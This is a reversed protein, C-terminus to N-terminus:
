NLQRNFRCLTGPLAWFRGGGVSFAITLGWSRGTSGGYKVTGGILAVKM